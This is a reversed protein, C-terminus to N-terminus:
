AVAKPIADASLWHLVGLAHDRRLPRLRKPLQWPPTAVEAATELEIADDTSLCEPLWHLFIWCRQLAWSAQWFSLLKVPENEAARHEREQVVAPPPPGDAAAEAPPVGEEQPEEGEDEPEPEMDAAAAEGEAAFLHGMGFHDLLRHLAPVFEEAVVPIEAHQGDKLRAKLFDVIASFCEPNVDLFPMGSKDTMIKSEWRGSFLEALHSEPVADCLVKRRVEFTEGGVNLQSRSSLSRFYSRFSLSFATTERITLSLKDVQAQNFFRAL